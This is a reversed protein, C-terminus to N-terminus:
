ITPIHISCNLSLFRENHSEYICPLCCIILNGLLEVVIDLSMSSKIWLSIQSGNFGWNM